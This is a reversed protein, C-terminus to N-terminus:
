GAKSPECSLGARRLPAIPRAVSRLSPKMECRVGIVPPTTQVRASHHGAEIAAIALNEIAVRERVPDDPLLKFEM